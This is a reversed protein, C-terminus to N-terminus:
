ASRAQRQTTARQTERKAGTRAKALRARVAKATQTAAAPDTRLRILADLARDQVQAGEWRKISAIGVGIWEAFAEQSMNLRERRGRIESSTLMAHEERYADAALQALGAAGLLDQTEWGCSVCRLGNTRVLVDEDRVTVVFACKAKRLAGKGCKLCQMLM